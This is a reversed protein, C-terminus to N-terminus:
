SVLMSVMLGGVLSWILMPVSSQADQWVVVCALPLVLLKEFALKMWLPSVTAQALQWLVTPPCCIANEPAVGLRGFIAGAM